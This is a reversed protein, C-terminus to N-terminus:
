NRARYRVRPGNKQERQHKIETKKRAKKIPKPNSYESTQGCFNQSDSRSRRDFLSEERVRARNRVRDPYRCEASPGPSFFGQHVRYM